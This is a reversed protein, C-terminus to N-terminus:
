SASPLNITLRWGIRERAPSSGVRRNPCPSLNNNGITIAKRYADIAAQIHGQKRHLDGLAHYLRSPHAGLREALKLGEEITSRAREFEGKQVSLFALNELAGLEWLHSKIHRSLKLMEEACASATKLDNRKRHLELLTGLNTYIWGYHGEEKALKLSREFYTQAKAEDGRDLLCLGIGWLAGMEGLKDGWKQSLRLSKEYLALAKQPILFSRYAAALHNLTVLYASALRKHSPYRQLLPEFLEAAREMEQIGQVMEGASWRKDGISNLALAEACADGWQRAYHLMAQFKQLAKDQNGVVTEYFLGTEHLLGLLTKQLRAFKEPPLINQRREMERQLWELSKEKADLARELDGMLWFADSEYSCACAYGGPDDIRVAITKALQAIRLGQQAENRELHRDAVSLLLSVLEENALEKEASLLKEVEVEDTTSALARALEEAAPYYRWVKWTGKEKVLVFTRTITQLIPTPPSIERQLVDVAVRLSAKDGDIQLRLLRLNSFSFDIRGFLDPLKAAFPQRDPSQDSWLSLLANLDEASYAAFFREVLSRIAPEDPNQPTAFSIQTLLLLWCCTQAWLRIGGALEGAKRVM